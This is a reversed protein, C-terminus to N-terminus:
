GVTPGADRGRRYVEELIEVLRPKMDLLDRWASEHIFAEAIGIRM